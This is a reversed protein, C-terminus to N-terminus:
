VLKQEDGWGVADWEKDWRVMVGWGVGGWVETENSDTVM